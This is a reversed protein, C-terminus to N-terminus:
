MQGVPSSAHSIKNALRHWLAQCRNRSQFPGVHTLQWSQTVAKLSYTANEKWICNPLCASKVRVDSPVFRLTRRFGSIDYEDPLVRLRSLKNHPLPVRSSRSTTFIFCHFHHILSWDPLWAIRREWATSRLATKIFLASSDCGSRISEPPFLDRKDQCIHAHVLSKQKKTNTRLLAILCAGALPWRAGNRALLRLWSAPASQHRTM